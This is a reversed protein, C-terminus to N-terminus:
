DAHRHDGSNLPLQVATRSGLTWKAEKQQSVHGSQWPSGESRETWGTPGADVKGSKPSLRSRKAVGKARLARQLANARAKVM